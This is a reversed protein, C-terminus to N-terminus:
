AAFDFVSRCMTIWSDDTSRDSGSWSRRRKKETKQAAKEMPADNANEEKRQNGEANTTTTTPAIEPDSTTQAKLAKAIKAAKREKQPRRREEDADESVETIVNEAPKSTDIYPHVSTSAKRRSPRAEFFEGVQQFEELLQSGRISLEREKLYANLNWLTVVTSGITVFSL